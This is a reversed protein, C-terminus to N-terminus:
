EAVFSVDAAILNPTMLSGPLAIMQFELHM